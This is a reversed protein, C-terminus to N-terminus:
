WSATYLETTRVKTTKEVDEEDAKKFMRQRLIFFQDLSTWGLPYAQIKFCNGPVRFLRHVDDEECQTAATGKSTTTTRGPGMGDVDEANKSWLLIGLDWGWDCHGTATSIETSQRIQDAHCSFIGSAGDEAGRDTSPSDLACMIKEGASDEEFDIPM